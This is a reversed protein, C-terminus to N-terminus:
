SVVQNGSTDIAQARIDLDLGTPWRGKRYITFIYPDGSTGSGTVTSRGNFPHIFGDGNTPDYVVLRSGDERDRCSLSYFVLGTDDYISVVLPETTITPESVITIVPEVSDVSAGGSGYYGRTSLGVSMALTDSLFDLEAVKALLALGQVM